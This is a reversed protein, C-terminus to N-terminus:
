YVGFVLYFLKPQTYNDRSFFRLFTDIVVVINLTFLVGIITAILRTHNSLYIVLVQVILGYLCGVIAFFGIVLPAMIVVPEQYEAYKFENAILSFGFLSGGIFGLILFLFISRIGGKM